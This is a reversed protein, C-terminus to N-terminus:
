QVIFKQIEIAVGNIDTFNVIYIGRAYKSVDITIGGQMNGGTIYEGSINLISYAINRYQMDSFTIIYQAPNPYVIFQTEYANETFEEKEYFPWLCNVEALITNPDAYWYSSRWLTKCIGDSFGQPYEAAVKNNLWNFKQWATNYAGATFDQMALRYQEAITIRGGGQKNITANCSTESLRLSIEEGTPNNDCVSTLMCNCNAPQSAPMDDEYAVTLNNCTFPEESWGINYNVLIEPESTGWWNGHALITDSIDTAGFDVYCVDFLYGNGDFRNHHIDLPNASANAHVVQDIELLMDTATIAIDNNVIWGCNKDGVVIRRLTDSETAGYMKSDARIATGNQKLTAKNRLYVNSGWAEIADGDCNQIISADLFLATVNNLWIGANYDGTKHYYKITGGQVTCEAVDQLFLGAIVNINGTLYTYYLKMRGVNYGEISIDQQNTFTCYNLNVNIDGPCSEINEFKMGSVFGDVECNEALFDKTDYAWMAVSAPTFSNNSQVFDVHRLTVENFAVRFKSSNNYLLKCDTIEVDHSPIYLDAFPNLQIKLETESAGDIVFKTYEGLDFEGGEYYDLYGTGSFTFNVYDATEILGGNKLQITATPSNLFIDNGELYIIGGNEIIIKASNQLELNNGPELILKGGNKIMIYSDDKLLVNADTKIRFTSTDDILIYSKKNLTINCTAGAIMQSKSLMNVVASDEMSMSSNGSVSVIANNIPNLCSTNKLIMGSGDRLTFVTTDAFIKEGTFLIPNVPKTPTLGQDLKLVASNKLYLSDHLAITGCWRRTETIEYDNWRIKVKLDGDLQQELVEISIGNLRITTNDGPQPSPYPLITDISKTSYSSLSSATPNEGISIKYGQVFGDYRTGYGPWTGAVFDSAPLNVGDLKVSAPFIIESRKIIEDENYDFAPSMWFHYGTLPNEYDTDILLQDTATDIDVDYNGYANLWWLYNNPGLTFSSTDEKGVQIFAYLGKRSPASNDMYGEEFQHNELWLYQDRVNIDDAKLYPLKIRIADGTTVFDRLIFEGNSGAPFTEEYIFDTEVTLGTGANKAEIYNADGTQKWGIRYRDWANFGNYVNDYSGMCAYGGVSSLFTREGHGGGATHFENPGFLSHNFEHRIVGFANGSYSVFRSFDMYGSMGKITNNAWSTNISGSSYRITDYYDTRWLVMILDIYDDAARTKYVGRDVGFPKTVYDFNTNLSLGHKTTLDTGPLSNIFDIVQQDGYDTISAASVSCLTDLYDGLVVYKGFSAQYFYDTM